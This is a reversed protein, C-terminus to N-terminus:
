RIINFEFCLLMVFMKLVFVNGGLVVIYYKNKPDISNGQAAFLRDSAALINDVAGEHVSETARNRGTGEKIHALLDNLASAVDGAAKRL